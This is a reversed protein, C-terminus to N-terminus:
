HPRVPRRRERVRLPGVRAEIAAAVERRLGIMFATESVVFLPGILLGAVDDLFAPKRGEFVHGVAQFIWGVVFLGLGWGLWVGTSRDALADGTVVAATLLVTMVAGFRLDLGLYWAAALGAVVMAPNLHVAGLDLTPRSLLIAVAVVIMPIGILHTVLNRADRHYAGYGALRDVLRELGRPAAPEISYM